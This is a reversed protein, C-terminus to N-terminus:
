VWFIKIPEPNKGVKETECLSNRFAWGFKLFTKAGGRIKKSFEFCGLFFLSPLSHTHSHTNTDTSNTLTHTRDGRRATQISLALPSKQGGWGPIVEVEWWWCRRYLCNCTPSCVKTLGVGWSSLAQLKKLLKNVVKRFQWLEEFILDRYSFYHVKSLKRVNFSRSSIWWSLRSNARTRSTAPSASTPVRGDASWRTWWVARFRRLCRLSPQFAKSLETHGLNDPWRSSARDLRCSCRDQLDRQRWTPAIKFFSIPCLWGGSVSLLDVM